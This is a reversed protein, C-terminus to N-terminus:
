LFFKSDVFRFTKLINASLVNSERKAKAKTATTGAVACNACSDDVILWFTPTMPVPVATVKLEISAMEPTPKVLPEEVTVIWDAPVYKM